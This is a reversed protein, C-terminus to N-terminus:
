TFEVTEINGYHFQRHHNACVTIVNAIGLSGKALNSVPFIHHAEIYYENDKKKFSYPNQKLAECIKCKYEYFKKIEKITGREITKSVKEKIAPIADKYKLELQKIRENNIEGRLEINDNLFYNHMSHKILEDAIQKGEPKLQNYKDYLYRIAANKFNNYEPNKYTFDFLTEPNDDVQELLVVNANQRKSTIYSTQILNGRKDEMFYTIKSNDNALLIYKKLSKSQAISFLKKIESLKISNGM